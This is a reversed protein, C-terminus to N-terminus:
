LFTADPMRRDKATAPYGRARLARGAKKSQRLSAGRLVEALRLKSSSCLAILGVTTLAALCLEAARHAMGFGGTSGALVDDGLWGFSKAHYRLESRLFELEILGLVSTAGLLVAIGLGAWLSRRGRPPGEVQRSETLGRKQDETNLPLDPDM